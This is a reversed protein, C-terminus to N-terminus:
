STPEAHEVDLTYVSAITGDEQKVVKVHLTGTVTMFDGVYPMPHDPPTFAFVREQVQPPGSFCCKAVNYVFQFESVRPAASAGAWMFGKLQVRKGDLARWKPPVDNITGNSQDFQFYGLSKLDVVAYDKGYHVGGTLTQNLYVYAFWAFPLAVVAMFGILRFNIGSLPRNQVATGM